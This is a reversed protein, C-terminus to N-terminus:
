PMRQMPDVQAAAVERNLESMQTHVVFMGM